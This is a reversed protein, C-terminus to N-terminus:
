ELGPGWPYTTDHNMSNEYHSDLSNYYNEITEFPDSKSVKYKCCLFILVYYSWTLNKRNILFHIVDIIFISKYGAKVTM